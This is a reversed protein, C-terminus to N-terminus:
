IISFLFRRADGVEYVMYTLKILREFSYFGINPDSIVKFVDFFVWWWIGRWHMAFGHVCWIFACYTWTGIRNAVIDWFRPTCRCFSLIAQLFRSTLLDKKEWKQSDITLFLVDLFNKGPGPSILIGRPNMRYFHLFFWLCSKNIVDSM